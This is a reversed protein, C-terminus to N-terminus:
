RLRHGGHHKRECSRKAGRSKAGRHEAKGCRRHRRRKHSHKKKHAHKTPQTTDGAPASSPPTATEEAPPEPAPPEPTPPPAPPPPSGEYRVVGFGDAASGAVVIKGDPQLAIARASGKSGEFDTTVMGGEGFSTDNSGDTADYRALAYDVEGTEEDEITGAAIVRGDKQVAVGYALRGEGHWGPFLAHTGDYASDLSGDANFRGTAFSEWGGAVVIQGNPALAASTAQTTARASAMGDGEGFGTDLSGDAEYQVLGVEGKGIGNPFDHVTGVAVLKGNPRLLLANAVDGESEPFVTTILGDGEGFGTDLSGDSNYRVLGIEKPSDIDPWTLGAAVLKGDPQLVLANANDFDTNPFDTTVIGNEGFSTDPTGDTNYRALAFYPGARGAAVIKGNPQVVVATAREGEYGFDTTVKGDGGFGTDLTGNANYRALDFEEHGGAVVIRGNPQVAVAGAGVQDDHELVALDHLLARV